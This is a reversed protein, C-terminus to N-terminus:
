SDDTNVIFDNESARRNLHVRIKQLSESDCAYGKGNIVLYDGYDFIQLKEGNDFRIETLWGKNGLIGPLEKFPIGTKGLQASKLLGALEECSEEAYYYVATHKGNQLRMRAIWCNEFDYNEIPPRTDAKPWLIYAACGVICIVISSLILWKRKLELGWGRM